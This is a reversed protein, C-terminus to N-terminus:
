RKKYERIYEPDDFKKKGCESCLLTVFKEPDTCPDFDLQTEHDCNWCKWSPFGTQKNKRYDRLFCKRSCFKHNSKYPEFEGGCSECIKKEM